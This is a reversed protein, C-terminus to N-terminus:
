DELHNRMVDALGQFGERRIKEEAVSIGLQLAQRIDKEPHCALCFLIGAIFTDGAGVPDVVVVVSNPKELFIERESYAAAGAAGWTCFMVPSRDALRRAQDHLFPRPHTYGQGEAWSKSFFVVDAQAALEELGPRGPKEVEVSIKAKPFASRLHEICALTIDPIRGEFHWWVGEGGAEPVGAERAVRVFEDVTMEPLENYNVITRSDTTQSKIIYSSAAEFCEERYICHSLDVGPLSDVITKSAQSSSSPLTGLFVLKTNCTASKISILQSLVELTNPCNGGRRKVLSTARLKSDEEPFLPVTLITDLYCAGVCIITTM